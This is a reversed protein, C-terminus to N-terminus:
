NKYDKQQIEKNETKGGGRLTSNYMKTPALVQSSRVEVFIRVFISQRFQQIKLLFSGHLPTKQQLKDVTKQNYM